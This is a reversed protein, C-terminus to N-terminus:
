FLLLFRGSIEAAERRGYHDSKEERRKLMGIRKQAKNSSRCNLLRRMSKMVM